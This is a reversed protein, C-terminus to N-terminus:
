REGSSSCCIAGSDLVFVRGNTLHLKDSLRVDSHKKMLHVSQDQPTPELCEKKGNRLYLLSKSNKRKIPLKREFTDRMFYTRNTKAVILLM